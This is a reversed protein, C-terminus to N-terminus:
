GPLLPRDPLLPGSRQGDPAAQLDAAVAAARLLERPSVRSPVIFDRAGEPTSRMMTPTEVELFGQDALAARVEATAASRLALNRQMVGSRLDLYRYTQRLEERADVTDGIAFPLPDCASLVEIETAALEIEGTAQDANAMDAPRLRVAGAVAICYEDRM